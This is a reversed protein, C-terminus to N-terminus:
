GKGTRVLLFCLWVEREELNMWDNDLANGSESPPERQNVVNAMAQGPTLDEDGEAPIQNTEAACCNRLM